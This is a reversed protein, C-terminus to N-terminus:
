KEKLSCHNLADKQFSHCNQGYDGPRWAWSGSYASAFDRLCQHIETDTRADDAEIWPNFTTDATDGHHPDKTATGGFNSQGNLEGDVGALTDYAGSVPEKPWWGYSETGNIELWWHGYKDEGEGAMWIIDKRKIVITTIQRRKPCPVVPSGVPKPPAVPPPAPSKPKKSALAAEYAKTWDRRLAADKPEMTLARGGTRSAIAQNAAKVADPDLPKTIM